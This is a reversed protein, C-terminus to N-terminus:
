DHCLCVRGGSIKCLHNVTSGYVYISGTEDTVIMEGFNVNKMETVTGCIYYREVTTNGPEGCKELAEAITIIEYNDSWEDGKEDGGDPDKDSPDSAPPNNNDQPPTDDRNCSALVSVASLMLVLALLVSLLKTKM